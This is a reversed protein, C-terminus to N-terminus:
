GWKDYFTGGTPYTSLLQHSRKHCKAPGFNQSSIRFSQLERTAEHNLIQPQWKQPKPWQQPTNLGWSQFKQRGHACGFFLVFGFFGVLNNFVLIPNQSERGNVTWDQNWSCKKKSAGPSWSSSTGLLPFNLLSTSLVTELAGQEDRRDELISQKRPTPPDLNM